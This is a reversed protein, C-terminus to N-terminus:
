MEMGNTKMQQLVFTLIIMKDNPRNNKVNEIFTILYEYDEILLYKKM